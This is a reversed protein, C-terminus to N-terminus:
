TAVEVPTAVVADEVAPVPTEADHHSL